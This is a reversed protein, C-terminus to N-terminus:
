VAKSKKTPSVLLFSLTMTTLVLIFPSKAASGALVGGIYGFPSMFGNLLTNFISVIKARHKDDIANALLADAFPSAIAFGGSELLIGCFVMFIGGVPAAILLVIGLASCALGFRLAKSPNVRGLGPMIFVYILMKMASTLAPVVAILALPFQLGERLLLSLFTRNYLMQINGFFVILFAFMTSPTKRLVGVIDRYEALVDRFRLNKSEKMKRYGIETEHTLHNRLIFMVTMSLFAFLYLMRVAPVLGQRSVLLGALPAFFGSLTGAVNIWTYVYMRRRPPTDEVFLCTWSTFVIRVISNIVAAIIFYSFNRAAAWILTPISWAILDFILTTRKRGLRDTVYGGAFSFLMECILGVSAVIGIQEATCGLARMYLSTYAIYLNYPIGWMPEAILCGKANGKFSGLILLTHRM